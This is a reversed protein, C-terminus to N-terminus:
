GRWENSPTDAWKKRAVRTSPFATGLKRARNRVSNLSRNFTVAARAISVGQAVIAKLRDNDEDTWVRNQRKV